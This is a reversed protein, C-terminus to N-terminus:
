CEYEGLDNKILTTNFTTLNVNVLVDTSSRTHFLSHQSVASYLVINIYYYMCGLGEHLGLFTRTGGGRLESVVM